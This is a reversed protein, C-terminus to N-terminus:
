SVLFKFHIQYKFHTVLHSWVGKLSVQRGYVAGHNFNEFYGVIHIVFCNRRIKRETCLSISSTIVLFQKIM